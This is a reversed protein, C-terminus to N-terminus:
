GASHLRPDVAMVLLDALLGVLLYVLTTFLTIGQILPYDRNLVADVALRGLGPRAFVVEILVTGSILASALLGVTTILPILVNPLAHRLYVGREALGKARATRIFQERLVGQMRTQTIRALLAAPWLAVCIAPLLLAAIGTGGLPLWRLYSGFFLALNPALWALPLSLAVVSGLSLSRRLLPNPSLVTLLGLGLGLSVALLLGCAALLLTEPLRELIEGSVPLGTRLSRGLDGQMLRALYRVYQVPLSDDLGLEARLAAVREPTARPGLLLLVPDGPALRGAAFSLLSVGFLIPILSLLRRVIM